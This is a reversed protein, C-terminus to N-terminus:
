DIKGLLWDIHDIIQLNFDLLSRVLIYRSDLLEIRTQMKIQAESQKGIETKVEVSLVRGKVGEIKLDSVGALMGVKVHLQNIKAIEDTIWKKWIPPMKPHLNIGFGNTVAYIILRPSHSLLCYKNNFENYISQQIVAEPTEKM